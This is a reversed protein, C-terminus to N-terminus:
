RKEIVFLKPVEKRPSPEVPFMVTYISKELSTFWQQIENWECEGGSHGTYVMVVLNGGSQLLDLSHSFATLTTSAATIINKDGGPLYGLNFMVVKIKQHYNQPIHELMEAHSTHFIEVRQHLALQELRKQTNIIAQHQIDFGFVKGTKGVIRALFSTDHGNGVTADIAVDGASLLKEVHLHCYDTLRM